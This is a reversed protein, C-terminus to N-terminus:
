LGDVAGFKGSSPFIVNIRYNNHDCVPINKYFLLVNSILRGVPCPIVEFGTGIPCYYGQPCIQASTGDTCYYGAPCVYCEAAGTHNM